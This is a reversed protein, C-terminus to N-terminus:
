VGVSREARLRERADRAKAKRGAVIKKEEARGLKKNRLWDYRETTRLQWWFWASRRSISGRSWDNLESLVDIADGYLQIQRKAWDEPDETKARVKVVADQFLTAQQLVFWLHVAGARSPVYRGMGSVAFSDHNLADLEEHTQATVFRQLRKEAHESYLRRSSARADRSTWWRGLLTVVVTVATGVLAGVLAAIVEESM